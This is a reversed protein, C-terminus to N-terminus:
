YLELRWTPKPTSRPVATFYPNIGPTFSGAQLSDQPRFSSASDASTTHLRLRKRSVLRHVVCFPHCHPHTELGSPRHHHCTHFHAYKCRHPTPTLTLTTTGQLALAFTTPLM